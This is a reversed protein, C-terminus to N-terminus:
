SLAKVPFLWQLVGLREWESEREREWVCVSVQVYYQLNDVLFGMHTRLEWVARLEETKRRYQMLLAWVQQLAIQARRSLLLFRFLGDYRHYYYYYNHYMLKINQEVSVTWLIMCQWCSILKCKMVPTWRCLSWCPTNGGGGEGGLFSLLKLCVCLVHWTDSRTSHTSKM